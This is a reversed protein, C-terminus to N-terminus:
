LRYPKQAVCSNFVKNGLELWAAHKQADVYESSKHISQSKLWNLVQNLTKEGIAPFISKCKCNAKLSCEKNNLCDDVCFQHEIIKGLCKDIKWFKGEPSDKNLDLIWSLSIGKKIDTFDWYSADSLAVKKELLELNGYSDTSTLAAYLFPKPLENELERSKTAVLSSNWVGDIPMVGNCKNFTEGFNSDPSLKDSDLVCICIEKQEKNIQELTQFTTSGGGSRRQLKICLGRLKKKIMYHNAALELVDCDILNEALLVTPLKLNSNKFYVFPVHWDGNTIDKSPSTINADIVIVQKCLRNLNDFSISSLLHKCYGVFRNGIGHVNILTMLTLREAFISHSGEIGAGLINELAHINEDSTFDLESISKDIFFRMKNLSLSDM